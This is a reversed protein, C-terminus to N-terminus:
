PNLFRFLSTFPEGLSTGGAGDSDTGFFCGCEWTKMELMRDSKSTLAIPLLTDSHTFPRILSSPLLLMDENEHTFRMRDQHRSATGPDMWLSM